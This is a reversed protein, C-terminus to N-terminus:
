NDNGPVFCRISKGSGFFWVIGTGVPNGYKRRIADDPVQLWNEAGPNDPDPIYYHNDLRQEYDTPMGDAEACCSAIPESQFWKKVSDPLIGFKGTDRAQLPVAFMFAMTCLFGFHLGIVLLLREIM